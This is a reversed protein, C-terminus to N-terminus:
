RLADRSRVRMIVRFFKLLHNWKLSLLDLEKGKIMRAGTQLNDSQCWHSVVIIIIHLYLYMHTINQM